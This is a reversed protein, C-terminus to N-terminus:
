GLRLRPAFCGFVAGAPAPLVPELVGGGLVPGGAELQSAAYSRGGITQAIADYNLYAGSASADVKASDSRTTEVVQRRFGKPDLTLALDMKATDFRVKMAPIDALGVYVAGPGDIRRAAAPIEIRAETLIDVPLYYGDDRKMALVTVVLPTGNLSVSLVESEDEIEQAAVPEVTQAFGPRPDAILLGATLVLGTALVSTARAAM